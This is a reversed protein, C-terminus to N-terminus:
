TITYNVYEQFCPLLFLMMYQIKNPSFSITQPRSHSNGTKFLYANKNNIFSFGCVGLTARSADIWKSIHYKRTKIIASKHNMHQKTCKLIDLRISVEMMKKNNTSVSNYQETIRIGWYKGLSAGHGTCFTEMMYEVRAQSSLLNRDSVPNEAAGNWLGTRQTLDM